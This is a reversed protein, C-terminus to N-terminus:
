VQANGALEVSHSQQSMCHLLEGEIWCDVTYKEANRVVFNAFVAHGADRGSGGDGTNTGNTSLTPGDPGAEHAAHSGGGGQGQSPAKQSQTQTQTQTHASSSVAAISTITSSPVLTRSGGPGIGFASYLEHLWKDVVATQTQALAVPLPGRGALVSFLISLIVLAKLSHWGAPRSPERARVAASMTWTRLLRLLSPPSEHGARVISSINVICMTYPSDVTQSAASLQKLYGSRAENM